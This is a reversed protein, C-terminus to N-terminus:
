AASAGSHIMLLFRTDHFCKAPFFSAARGRGEGEEKKAPTHAHAEEPVTKQKKEM